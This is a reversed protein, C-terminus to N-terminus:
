SAWFACVVSTFARFLWTGMDLVSARLIALFAFPFHADGTAASTHPSGERPRQPKGSANVHRDWPLSRELAKASKPLWPHSAPQQQVVNM